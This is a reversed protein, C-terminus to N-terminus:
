EIQEEEVKVDKKNFYAIVRKYNLACIYLYIMVYVIKVIARRSIVIDNNSVRCQEINIANM